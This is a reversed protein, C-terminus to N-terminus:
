IGLHYFMVAFVGDAVVILVIGSVVARTASLGVAAAGNGTQLGRLCGIGAVLIGFVFSKGIGGLLDHLDVQSVVENYFTIFPVNFTKLVLAGGILGVVDAFMTLLPTMAVAALVRTVVLFRVPDLGMTDLADLEEDVKMTGIEAAFAAGSRGALLIATMLPALERLMALGILDAVFIEAGFQRMSVASQFAIIVGMLFAILSVIPLASAGTQEAILLADRWRVSGPHLLAHGIASTAEGLFAILDRVDRWFAIGARGIREVIPRRKRGLSLPARFDEPNFHELMRQYRRAVHRLEVEEGQRRPRRLADVLMAIGSGDMYEVQALDLVVPGSRALAAKVEAWAPAVSNVTLRGSLTVIRPTLASSLPM